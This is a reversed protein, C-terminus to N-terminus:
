SYEGFGLKSPYCNKREGELPLEMYIISSGHRVAGIATGAYIFYPTDLVTCVCDFEKLTKTSVLQLKRLEEPEYQKYAM